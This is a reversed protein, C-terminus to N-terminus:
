QKSDIFNFLLGYKKAIDKAHSHGEPTRRRIKFLREGDKTEAALSDLKVRSKGNNNIEDTKYALEHIHTSFICKCGIAAFHKLLEESLVSGDYASTSSFTEDMLVLSNQTVNSIIGNLQACEQELRGGDGVTIGSKSTFHLFIDDVLSLVASKAPIFLGLQFL